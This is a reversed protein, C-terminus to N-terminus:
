KLQTMSICAIIIPVLVSWWPLLLVGCLKMVVMVIFFLVCAVFIIFFPLGSFDPIM